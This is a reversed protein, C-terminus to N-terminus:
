NIYKIQEMYISNLREINKKKINRKIAIKRGNNGM